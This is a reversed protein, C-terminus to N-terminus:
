DARADSKCYRVCALTMCGLAVAIATLVYKAEYGGNQFVSGPSFYTLPSLYSLAEEKTISCLAMMIFGAFGLATAVGSVSRVRRALVAYLAGISLFVLQMFFLALSALTLTPLNAPDQGNGTFSLASAALFLANAAVILALCALLKLAFLRARSAPKTLLFDTCKARKERSFAAVALSSAMIAGILALYTFVFQFFGGYSFITDLEIGFAAAFAPPLSALAAEVAERSQMFISFFATGILIFLILLSATWVLFSKFLAKTEFLFVNLRV